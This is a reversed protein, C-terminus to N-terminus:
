EHPAENLAARLDDALESCSAIGAYYDPDVNWGPPENPENDLRV